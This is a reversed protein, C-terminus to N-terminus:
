LWLKTQLQLSKVGKVKTEVSEDGRCLRVEDGQKFKLPCSKDIYVTYSYSVTRVQGDESETASGDAQVADCPYDDSWSAVGAVWDGFEDIYAETITKKSISFDRFRLVAM